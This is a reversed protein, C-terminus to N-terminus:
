YGILLFYLFMGDNPLQQLGDTVLKDVMQENNSERELQISELWIETSTPNRKRAVELLSRARASSEVRQVIRIYLLWLPTSTQCLQLGTRHM